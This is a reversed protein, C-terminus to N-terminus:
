TPNAAAALATPLWGFSADTRGSPFYECGTWGVYPLRSLTQFFSTFDLTGSGPPGRGPFDSFQVHGIRPLRPAIGALWDEDAARMHYIDYLLAANPHSIDALLADAKALGCLIFEPRDASNMPETLLRLGAARLRAAAWNINEVLTEWCQEHRATAPVNGALCNIRVCGLAAAYEIAHEISARFATHQGPVCTLGLQGKSMDGAPANILVLEVNADWLAQRLANVPFEYPFQIEVAAFGAKAAAAPRNLMPLETFLTSINCSLRLM